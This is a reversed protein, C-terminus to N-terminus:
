ISIWENQLMTKKDLKGSWGGIKGTNTIVRHCPIIIPLPNKGCATGIAQIAKSWINEGIKKYSVTTGAEINKIANWVKTQFFTGNLEIYIQQKIEDAKKFNRDFFYEFFKKIKKWNEGEQNNLEPINKARKEPRWTKTLKNHVFSVSIYWEITKINYTWM